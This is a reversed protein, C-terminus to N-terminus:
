NLGSFLGSVFLWNHTKQCLFLISKQKEGQCPFMDCCMCSREHAQVTCCSTCPLTLSVKHWQHGEQVWWPFLPDWVDWKVHSSKFGKKTKISEKEIIFKKIRKQSCLVKEVSKSLTQFHLYSFQFVVPPIQLRWSSPAKWLCHKQFAISIM